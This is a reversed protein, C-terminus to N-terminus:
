VMRAIKAVEITLLYSSLWSVSLKATFLFPNVHRKPALDWGDRRLLRSVKGALRSPFFSAAQNYIIHEFATNILFRHGKEREMGPFTAISGLLSPYSSILRARFDLDWGDRRLLRAM